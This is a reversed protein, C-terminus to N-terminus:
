HLLNRGEITIAGRKNLLGKEILSQKCTDYEAGSMFRKMEHKRFDKIGAYSSKLSVAANLVKKENETLAIQPAPLAIQSMNDPHLYISLSDGYGSVHYAVVAFGPCPLKEGSNQAFDNAGSKETFWTGNEPISLMKMDALRIVKYYTRSGGDWFSRLDMGTEQPLINIMKGKYEPFALLPLKAALDSRKIIM